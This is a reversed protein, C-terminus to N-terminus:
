NKQAKLQAMAQLFGTLYDVRTKEAIADWQERPLSLASPTTDSSTGGLGALMANMGHLNIWRRDYHYPTRREWEVVKPILKELKPLDRYAYQNIPPGYSQNLVDVAQRATSDACLNADVRARLQGAYFWFLGDDKKASAFLVNSLAYLVPPAYNEPHAQIAEIARARDEPTGKTLVQLTDNALHTDITGYEGKPTVAAMDGAGAALPLALLNSVVVLLVRSTARIM